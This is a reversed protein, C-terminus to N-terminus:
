LGRKIERQLRLCSEIGDEHGGGGSSGSHYEGLLMPFVKVREEDKKGFAWVDRLRQRLCLVSVMVSVFLPMTDFEETEALEMLLM